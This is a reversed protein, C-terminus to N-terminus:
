NLEIITSPFFPNKLFTNRTKFSLINHKNRTVYNSSRLLILNFFYLAHESNFRKYFCFLKRFWCRVKISELGLEESISERSTGRVEGRVALCSNYQLLKLKQHFSANYAQDYIIDDYDLHSRIFTKYITLLASVPWINQLKHLIGTTKNVKNSILQM